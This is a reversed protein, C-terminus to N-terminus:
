FQFGKGDTMQNVYEQFSERKPVEFHVDDLNAALPMQGFCHVAEVAAHIHDSPADAPINALFLTLNHDYAFTKIFRKVTDVIREPPGERLLRANVGLTVSARIGKSKFQELYEVVPELPYEHWRGMTMFVVPQGMMTKIEADFTKWLIQKDFKSLNEECYDASAVLLAAFGYPLCNQMLRVAYPVVWEEVMEPSLNPYAAWADAGMAMTAGGLYDAQAKLYSPLVDDVIRRMLENAFAPDRRMDRIMLPYTRMAVAMSFPACFSLMKAGSAEMSLRMSEWAFRIRGASLWDAPPKLKDLDAPKQIFPERSDITPMGADNHILKGGMAEIEFNYSDGGATPADLHYYAAVAAGAYSNARPDTYFRSAPVGAVHMIHDPMQASVDLRGQQAARYAVWWTRPDAIDIKEASVKGATFSGLLSKPEDM